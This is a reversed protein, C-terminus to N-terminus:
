NPQLPVCAHIMLATCRIMQRLADVKGGPERVDEIWGQDVDHQGTLAYGGGQARLQLWVPSIHSFRHGHSKAIDYGRGNRRPLHQM